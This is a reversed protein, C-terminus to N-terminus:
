ALCTDHSSKFGTTAQLAAAESSRQPQRAKISVQPAGTYAQLQLRLTYNEERLRQIEALLEEVSPVTGVVGNM